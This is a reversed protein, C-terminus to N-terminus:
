EPATYLDRMRFTRYQQAGTHLEYVINGQPDVEALLSTNDSLFGSLFMYHGNPLQQASGLASSFVGLDANLILDATMNTEDIRLAQGRSHAKPDLSQRVNSDDYLTITKGDPTYRADHQHSFWALPDSLNLQFDGGKGLKWIVHGDGEGNEYDVKYVFDQNRASILLNGDPTQQVSNVHTWDNAVKSLSACGVCTEGLTALRKVDLHEFADWVWKIQLDRDMIIVVDGIVDVPGPGQVDVLIREEMGLALVRGDPLREAEHHFGTIQSKGMPALQENVRAVSTEAITMGAADFERITEHDLGSPPAGFTPGGTTAWFYGGPQPDTMLMVPQPYYWMLKGELDTAVVNKVITSQLLLGTGKASKLVSQSVPLIEEKRTSFHVEPGEEVDFGSDILHRARYPTQAYMGALYFNMSFGPKCQQWPTFQPQEGASQFRVRMRSEPPCPPASYLFVMPHTTANVVPIDGTVNSRMEFRSKTVSIAGSALNRVSAEVEFTGEHDSATWAIFNDPGYDKVIRFDDGVRRVRFRYWLNGSGAAITSATWTIM